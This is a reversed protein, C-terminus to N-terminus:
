VGVVEALMKLLKLYLNGPLELEGINALTPYPMYCCRELRAGPKCGFIRLIRRGSADREETVVPNLSTARVASWRSRLRALLEPDSPSVETVPMKWGTVLLSQLKMFDDPLVISATGESDAVLEGGLTKGGRVGNCGEEMLLDAMMGPALLAVRMELDPFPSESSECGTALSEGLYIAVDETLQRTTM